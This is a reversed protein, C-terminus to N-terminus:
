EGLLLSRLRAVGQTAPLEIPVINRYQVVNPVKKDIVYKTTAQPVYDILCAAPYVVLSSGVLVFLDAKQMMPIAEAIKPVAEEFWVVHPRFQSGDPAMDGIMIENEIPYLSESDKCGRM